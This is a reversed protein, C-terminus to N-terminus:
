LAGPWARTLGWMAVWGYAAAALDDAMIGLGGPLAELGRAPWPKVIDLIRFLIFAVGLGALSLDLCLATLMQGAVEDVVVHGPDERQFHRAARTASWVGLLCVAVLLLVQWAAPWARTMLILLIGVASGATGPAVPAYGAGGATALVLALRTM